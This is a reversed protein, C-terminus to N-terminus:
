DFHKYIVIDCLDYMNKVGVESIEVKGDKIFEKLEFFSAQAM